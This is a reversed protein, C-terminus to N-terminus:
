PKRWGGWSTEGDNWIALLFLVILILLAWAGIGKLIDIFSTALLLEPM